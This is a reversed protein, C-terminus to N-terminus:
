LLFLDKMERTAEAERIRSGEELFYEYLSTVMGRKHLADYIKPMMALSSSDTKLLDSAAHYGLQKPEFCSFFSRLIKKEEGSAVSFRLQYYEKGWPPSFDVYWVKEGDFVFNKIHPDLSIKQHQAQRIIEFMQNLFGGPALFMPFGYEEIYQVGNIGKYECLFLFYNEGRTATKVAPFYINAKQLQEIYTLTLEFLAEVHPRGWSPHLTIKKELNNLVIEKEIEEFDAELQQITKGM